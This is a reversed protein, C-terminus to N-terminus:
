EEWDDDLDFDAGRLENWKAELTQPHDSAQVLVPLDGTDSVLVFPGCAQALSVVLELILSESGKEFVVSCEQDEEVADLVVSTWTEDSREIHLQIGTDGKFTETNANPLQNAVQLVESVLPARGSSDPVHYDFEESLEDLWLSLEQDLPAAIYIVGM